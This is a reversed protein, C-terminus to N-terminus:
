ALVRAPQVVCVKELWGIREIKVSVRDGDSLFRPPEWLVGVGSSTSTAIADGPELTFAASCYSIIEAVSFYMQAISADQVRESGVSCSIAPQRPDGIEEATVLVPGMPCFTDLSKGRGM